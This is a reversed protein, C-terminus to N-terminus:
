KKANRIAFYVAVLDMGTTVFDSVIKTVKADDAPTLAPASKHLAKILLNAIYTEVTDM